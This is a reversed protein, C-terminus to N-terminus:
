LPPFDLNQGKGFKNDLHHHSSLSRDVFRFTSRTHSPEILKPIIIRKEFAPVRERNLPEVQFRSAHELLMSWMMQLLCSIDIPKLICNTVEIDNPRGVLMCQSKKNIADSKIVNAFSIRCLSPWKEVYIKVCHSSKSMDAYLGCEYPISFLLALTKIKNTAAVDSWRRILNRGFPHDRSTVRPDIM